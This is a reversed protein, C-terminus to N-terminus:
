KFYKKDILKVKEKIIKEPKTYKINLVESTFTGDLNNKAARKEGYDIDKFKCKKYSMHKSNLSTKIIIDAFNIRSIVHSSVVHLIKPVKVLKIIKYIARCFDVHHTITFLNDEAMKANNKMLTLYCDKIMCSYEDSMEINRGTRIIHYNAYKTDKLYNEINFKLKGYFNVPNTKSNENYFGKKGNFIEASSFYFFKIRKKILKFLFKKTLVINLKESKKKNKRIWSVDTYSSLFFILDNKNIKNLLKNESETNGLSFHILNPKKNKNYTGIVNLKKKKLFRYLNFGIAGSSGIIFIKM